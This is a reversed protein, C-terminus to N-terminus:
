DSIKTNRHESWGVTWRPKTKEGLRMVPWEATKGSTQQVLCGATLHHALLPLPCQVRPGFQPGLSWYTKRWILRTMQTWVYSHRSFFCIFSANFQHTHTHSLSLSLSLSLPPPPPPPPFVSLCASVSLPLRWTQQAIKAILAATSITVRVSTASLRQYPWVSRSQRCGSILDCPGVKGVATSLTVHVSKASLRQYPWM